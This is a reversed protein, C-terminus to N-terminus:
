AMIDSVYSGTVIGGDGVVPRAVEGLAVSDVLPEDEMCCSMPHIIFSLSVSSFVIRLHFLFGVTYRFYVHM